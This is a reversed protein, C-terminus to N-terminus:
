PTPPLLTLGLMEFLRGATDEVFDDLPEEAGDEALLARIADPEVTNGTAVLAWAVLGAAQEDLDVEGSASPDEFYDRPQFGLHVRGGSQPGPVYSITAIDSDHIEVTM